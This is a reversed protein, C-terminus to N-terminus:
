TKCLGETFEIHAPQTGCCVVLQEMCMLLM